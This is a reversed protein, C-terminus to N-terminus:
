SHSAVDVPAVASRPKQVDNRFRSCGSSECIPAESGLKASANASADSTPRKARRATTAVASPQCHVATIATTPLREISRIAPPGGRMPPPGYWAARAILSSAIVGCVFAPFVSLKLIVGQGFGALGAGILVFNGTVHATFLGFLAVFSLTDVFGAVAALITDEHKM